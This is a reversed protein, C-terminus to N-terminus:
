KTAYLIFMREVINKELERIIDERNDDTLICTKDVMAVTTDTNVEILEIRYNRAGKFAGEIKIEVRRSVLHKGISSGFLDVITELTM